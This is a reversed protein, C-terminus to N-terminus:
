RVMAVLTAMTVYGDFPAEGLKQLFHPSSPTRRRPRSLGANIPRFQREKM